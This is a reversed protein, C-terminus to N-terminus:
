ADLLESAPLPASEPMLRRRIARLGSRGSISHILEAQPDTMMVFEYVALAHIADACELAVYSGRDCTRADVTLGPMGALLSATSQQAALDAMEYVQILWSANNMKPDKKSILFVQKTLRAMEVTRGPVLM